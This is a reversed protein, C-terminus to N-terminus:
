RKKESAEQEAVLAQFAPLQRLQPHRAKIIVILNGALRTNGQKVSIALAAMVAAPDSTLAPNLEYAQELMTEAQAFDGLNVHALMLAKYHDYRDSSAPGRLAAQLAQIALRDEGSALLAFGHLAQAEADDPNQRTLSALTRRLEAWRAPEKDADTQWYTLWLRALRHERAYAKGGEPLADLQARAGAHDGNLMQVQALRIEYIGSGKCRAGEAQWRKLLAPYGNDAARAARAQAVIEASLQQYVRDCAQPTEARVAGALCLGAVAALVGARARLKLSM